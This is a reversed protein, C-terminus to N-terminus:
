GAPLLPTPSVAVFGNFFAEVDDAPNAVSSTCDVAAGYDFGKLDSGLPVM